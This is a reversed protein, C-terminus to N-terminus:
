VELMKNDILRAKGLKVALAMVARDEITDIPELKEPDIIEVYDVQCGPCADIMSKVEAKLRATDHQGQKCLKGAHKLANYLVVAKKREAPTLYENRSSMALGDAERFTPHGIIKVNMNLDQVMRKIVVLQQYDKQGFVAVDPEIINFLKAVVTAVGRFHIPRSVGCLKSSIGEVSIYTAYGERYMQSADPYFICEVGVDRAQHSDREFDRPYSSLDENEGFQTPNVFLSIIPHDALDKAMRMLSLHGEHFYGMTPVLSITEGKTKIARVYDKMAAIDRIIDM